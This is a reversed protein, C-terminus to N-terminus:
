DRARSEILWETPRDTPGALVFVLRILVILSKWRKLRDTIIRCTGTSNYVGKNSGRGLLVRSIVGHIRGQKPGQWDGGLKQLFWYLGPSLNWSVLFEFWKNQIHRHGIIFGFPHNSTCNHVAINTVFPFSFELTGKLGYPACNRLDWIAVSSLM